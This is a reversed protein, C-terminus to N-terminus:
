MTPREVNEEFKPALKAIVLGIAAPLVYVSFIEALTGSGIDRDRSPRPRAPRALKLARRFRYLSGLPAFPGQM